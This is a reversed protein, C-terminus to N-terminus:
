EGQKTIDYYEIQRAFKDGCSQCINYQNSCSFCVDVHNVNVMAEMGCMKCKVDKIGRAVARDACRGCIM